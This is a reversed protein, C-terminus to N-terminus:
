QVQQFYFIAQLLDTRWVQTTISMSKLGKAGHSSM